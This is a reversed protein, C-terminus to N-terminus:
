LRALIGVSFLWPIGFSLTASGYWYLAKEAGAGFVVYRKKTHTKINIGIKIISHQPAPAPLASIKKPGPAPSLILNKIFM